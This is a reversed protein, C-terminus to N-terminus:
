GPRPPFRDRRNPFRVRRHPFRVCRLPKRDPGKKKIKDQWKLLTFISQITDPHDSSINKQRYEIVESMLEIAENKLDLSWFTFALNAMSALTDPHELGLMRKRTDMVQVDLEEAEKWRGQNWVTSALNGMSTLTDPHELGLVRQDQANLRQNIIESLHYSGTDLLFRAFWFQSITYEDFIKQNSPIKNIKKKKEELKVDIHM